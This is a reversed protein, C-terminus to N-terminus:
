EKEKNKEEKNEIKIDNIIIKEDLRLVDSASMDIDGLEKLQIPEFDIDIVVQMLENFEKYFDQAKEESVSFQHTEENEEGYQKVLKIRTEELTKMEENLKKLLSSLRYAIKINVDKNFIKALSEELSKIEALTIKM